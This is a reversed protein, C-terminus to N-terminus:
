TGRLTGRGQFASCKIVAGIFSEFAPPELLASLPLVFLSHFFLHPWVYWCPDLIDLSSAVAPLKSVMRSLKNSPSLVHSWSVPPWQLPFDPADLLQKPLQLNSMPLSLLPSRNQTALSVTFLAVARRLPFSSGSSAGTSPEIRSPMGINNWPGNHNTAARPVMGQSPNLIGLLQCMESSGKRTKSESKLPSKRLLESTVERECADKQLHASYREQGTGRLLPM